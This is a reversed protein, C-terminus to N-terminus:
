KRAEFRYNKIGQVGNIGFASAPLGWQGILRWSKSPDNHSLKWNVVHFASQVTFYSFTYVAIKTNSPHPGLIPNAEPVGHGFGRATSHADLAQSAGIIAIGAWFTKDKYWHDHRRPEVWREYDEDCMNSKLWTFPNKLKREHTSCQGNAASASLALILALVTARM